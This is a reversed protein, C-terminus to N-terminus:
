RDSCWNKGVSRWWRRSLNIYM